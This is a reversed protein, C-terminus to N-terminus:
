NENLFDELIVAAAFSDMNEKKKRFNKNKGAEIMKGLAKQSSYSEDQIYIKIDSKVENLLLSIENIEAVLEKNQNNLTPCGLVIVRVNEDICINSMQSVFEEIGKNDITKYPSVIVRMLDTMALGIRKKGYDISLIRYYESM